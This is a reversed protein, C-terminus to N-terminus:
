TTLCEHESDRLLRMGPFLARYWDSTVVLRFQRAFHAALDNSYSVCALRLSPNHGVAWAVFAVSASISKLSRPPQTIILRRNEGHYIRALEHCIAEIHWNSRYADGPSVTHFVKRVFSTLDSRLALQLAENPNLLRSM